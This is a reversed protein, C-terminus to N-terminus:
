PQHLRKEIFSFEVTIPDMKCNGNGDNSQQKRHNQIPKSLGPNMGCISGSQKHRQTIKQQLRDRGCQGDVGCGQIEERQRHVIYFIM